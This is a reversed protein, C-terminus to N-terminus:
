FKASKNIEDDIMLKLRNIMDIRVSYDAINIKDTQIQHLKQTYQLLEETNLKPNNKIFEIATETQDDWIFQKIQEETDSNGNNTKLLEVVKKNALPQRASLYIILKSLEAIIEAFALNESEFFELSKETKPLSRIDSFFTDKYDCYRIIIPVLSYAGEVSNQALKESYLMLESNELFSASVLAIFIINDRSKEQLSTIADLNINEYGEEILKYKRILPKLQVSMEKAFSLESETHLITITMTKM